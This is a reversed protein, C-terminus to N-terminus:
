PLFLSLKVIRWLETQLTDVECAATGGNIMTDPVNKQPFIIERKMQNLFLLNETIPSFLASLVPLSGGSPKGLFLTILYSDM